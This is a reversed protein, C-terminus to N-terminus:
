VNVLTADIVTKTNARAQHFAQWDDLSQPGDFLKRNFPTAILQETLKDFDELTSRDGMHELGTVSDGDQSFMYANEVYREMQFPSVYEGMVMNHHAKQTVCETYAPPM